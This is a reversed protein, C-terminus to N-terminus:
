INISKLFESDILEWSKKITLYADNLSCKNCSKNESFLKFNKYMEYFGPKLDGGEFFSDKLIPRYSRIPYEQTPESIKMENYISLKEIPKLEYVCKNTNVKISFNSPINSHANILINWNQNNCLASFYDIDDFSKNFKINKGILSFDSVLYRLTDIMHCGNKLFNRVGYNDPISATITGGESNNCINKLMNVTKYYRRNYGVFINTQNKHNLIEELLFPNLCIPKEVFIPKNLNLANKLVEFTSSVSICIIYADLNKSLVEQWGGRCFSNQLGHACAFDECRKSNRRSGIAEIHIQNKKLAPIHFHSVSGCGIYGVKM